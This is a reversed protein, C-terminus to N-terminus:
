SPFVHFPSNPTLFSLCSLRPPGHVGAAQPPHGCYGQFKYTHIHTRMREHERANECPTSASCKMTNELPGMGM